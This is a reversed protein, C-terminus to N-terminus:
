GPSQVIGGVMKDIVSQPAFRRITGVVKARDMPYRLKRKDALAVEAIKEAVMQPTLKSERTDKGMRRVM